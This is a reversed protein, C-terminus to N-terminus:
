SRIETTQHAWLVPPFGIAGDLTHLKTKTIFDCKETAKHCTLVAHTELQIVDDVPLVTTVTNNTAASVRTHAGVDADTRRGRREQASPAHRKEKTRTASAGRSFVAPPREPPTEIKVAAFPDSDLSKVVNKQRVSAPFTSKLMALTDRAAQM